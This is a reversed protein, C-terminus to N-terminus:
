CIINDMEGDGGYLASLIVGDHPHSCIVDALWPYCGAYDCQMAYDDPEDLPLEGLELLAEEVLLDALSDLTQISNNM